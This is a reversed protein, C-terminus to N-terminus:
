ALAQAEKADCKIVTSPVHTLGFVAPNNRFCWGTERVVSFVNTFAVVVDVSFFM